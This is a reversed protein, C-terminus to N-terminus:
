NSSFKPPFEPKLPGTPGVENILIERIIESRDDIDDACLMKYIMPGSLGLASAIVDCVLGLSVIPDTASEIVGKLEVKPYKKQFLAILEQRRSVRDIQSPILARDQQVELRGVRYPLDNTEESLVKARALGQLMLYYRGDELQEEAAIKGLCVHDYIEPEHFEPTDDWGPQLVAMAIYRDSELADATMQRYRPEFIHLPMLVHPFFAVNPLPFLPVRGSFNELQSSLDFPHEM